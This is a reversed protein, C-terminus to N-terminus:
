EPVGRLFQEVLQVLTNYCTECMYEVTYVYDNADYTAPSVMVDKLLQEGLPIQRKCRDCFYLHYVSM